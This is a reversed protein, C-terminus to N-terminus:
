RLVKTIINQTNVFKNEREFRLQLFYCKPFTHIKEFRLQLNLKICCLQSNTIFLQLYYKSCVKWLNNEM